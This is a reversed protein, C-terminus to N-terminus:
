PTAKIIQCSMAAKQEPVNAPETFPLKQDPAVVTMVAPELLQHVKAAIVRALEPDEAM